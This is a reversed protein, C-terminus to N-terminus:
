SVSPVYAIHDCSGITPMSRIHQDEAGYFQYVPWLSADGFQALHTSDSAFVIPAVIRELEEEGFPLIICQIDLDADLMANSSFINSRLRQPPEAISPQWLHKFPTYHFHRCTSYRAILLDVLDQTYVGDIVLQKAVPERKKIGDCPLPISITSCKWGNREPLATAPDAMYNDLRKSEHSPNYSSMSNKLEIPDIPWDGLRNFVHQLDKASMSTVKSAGSTMIVASVLNSFPYYPTDEASAPQQASAQDVLANRASPFSGSEVDCASELSFYGDPDHTPRRPFRKFIGYENPKTTYTTSPAIPAVLAGDSHPKASLSLLLAPTAASPVFDKWRAPVRVQRGSRTFTTPTEDLLEPSQEHPEDLFTDAGGSLAALNADAAMGGEKSEKTTSNSCFDLLSIYFFCVIRIRKPSPVNNRRMDEQRDHPKARRLQITEAIYHSTNTCYRKHSRLSTISPFDRGCYICVETSKPMTIAIHVFIFGLGDAFVCAKLSARM